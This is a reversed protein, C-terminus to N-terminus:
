DFPLGVLLVGSLEDGDFLMKCDLTAVTFAAVASTLRLLLLALPLIRPSGGRLGSAGNGGVGIFLAVDLELSLVQLARVCNPRFLRTPRVVTVPYGTALHQASSFTLPIVRGDVVECQLVLQEPKIVDRCVIRYVEIRGPDRAKRLYVSCPDAWRLYEIDSSAWLIERINFFIVFRDNEVSM